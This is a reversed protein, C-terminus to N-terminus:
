PMVGGGGVPGILVAPPVAALALVASGDAGRVILVEPGLGPL